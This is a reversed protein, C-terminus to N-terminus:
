LKTRIMNENLYVFGEMKSELLGDIRQFAYDVNNPPLTLGHLFIQPEKRSARIKYQGEHGILEVVTGILYKCM